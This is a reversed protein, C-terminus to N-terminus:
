NADHHKGPLGGAGACVIPVRTDPLVAGVATAALVAGFDRSIPDLTAVSEAPDRELRTVVRARRGAAHQKESSGRAERWIASRVNADVFFDRGAEEDPTFEHPQPGVSAYRPSLFGSSHWRRHVEPRPIHRPLGDGVLPM